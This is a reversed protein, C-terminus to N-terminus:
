CLILKTIDGEFSSIRTKAFNKLIDLAYVSKKSGLYLM